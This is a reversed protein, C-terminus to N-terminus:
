LGLLDLMEDMADPKNEVDDLTPGGTVKVGPKLTQWARRAEAAYTTNHFVGEKLVSLVALADDGFEPLRTCILRCIWAFEAVARGTRKTKLCEALTVVARKRLVPDNTRTGYAFLFETAASAARVDNSRLVAALATMAQETCAPDVKIVAAALNSAMNARGPQRAVKELTELMLPAAARASPGM